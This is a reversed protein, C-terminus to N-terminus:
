RIFGLDWIAKGLILLNVAPGTFFWPHWLVVMITTSLAVAIIAMPVWAAALLPVGWVGLAALAFLVAVIAVVVGMERMAHCSSHWTVRVAPGRDVLKVGMGWKAMVRSLGLSIFAGGIALSRAGPNILNFRFDRFIEEDTLAALSVPWLLILSVGLAISRRM